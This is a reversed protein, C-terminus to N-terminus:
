GTISFLVKTFNHWAIEPEMCDVITEWPVNDLERHVNAWNVKSYDYCERKPPILRKCKVKIEFTIPHHDPNCHPENLGVKLNSIYSETTTFLIDLIGGKIHTPQRICQVLGSEAFGNLFRNELSGRGIGNEWDIQKLNLDGTFIFKRVSKKRILTKIANLIEEANDNGLTGVRYCTVVIIKSKDELLIEVALLEAKCKLKIKNSTVSLSSKISVLVGGGNQRFKKPNHEDTPHTAQSRDCRFTNYLQPPIIENSHTTPKLWTENLIIIDPITKHIYSHLECLKTEDFKPHNEVLYTFPILGQVNQYYLSLTKQKTTPGPNLIQTNYRTILHLKLSFLWLINKLICTIYINLKKEM